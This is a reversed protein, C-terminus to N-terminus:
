VTEAASHDYVELIGCTTKGTKHKQFVAEPSLPRFFEDQPRDSVVPVYPNRDPRGLRYLRDDGGPKNKGPRLAVKGQPIRLTYRSDKAPYCRSPPITGGLYFGNDFTIGVKGVHRSFQGHPFPFDDLQRNGSPVVLPYRLNQTNRYFEVFYM